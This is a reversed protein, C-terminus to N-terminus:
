EKVQFPYRALATYEPGEPTLKSAMLYLEQVLFKEDPIHGARERIM